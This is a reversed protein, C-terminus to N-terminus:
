GKPGGNGVGDGLAAGGADLDDHDGAVM